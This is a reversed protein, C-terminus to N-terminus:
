RTRLYEKLANSLWERYEADDSEDPTTDVPETNRSIKQDDADSDGDGDPGPTSPTSPMEQGCTPCTDDQGSAMGADRSEVLWLWLTREDESLEVGFKELAARIKAKVDELTVGNLPYEDANKPVNIYAWAAKAHEKTDVPYKGNKPDAYEVDGYPKPDKDDREAMVGRAANVSDRASLETTPYAPFATTTVEHLRMEHITRKTGRVSDSPNGNDDTWSDKIVEFGISMGRIVKAKAATMVDRAYSTDIPEADVDLGRSAVPTLTLRGPGETISTRAMPMATNHNHILVVDREQLTKTHAGPAIREDFGNNRKDGITTWVNYPTALGRLTKDDGSVGGLAERYEITM